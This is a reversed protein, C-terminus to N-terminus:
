VAAGKQGLFRDYEVLNVRLPAIEPVKPRPAPTLELVTDWRPVTEMHRLQLLAAEVRSEMTEAAHNLIRLYEQDAQRNSCAGCLEDYAWRFAETPFMDTRYKYHRFAGPKRVLSKIVHRYNIAHKDEGLLRDMTVQKIGHCYVEVRDEYVRAKVKQGKLRSPVSYTNRSVRVTSWATVCPTEELYEPLLRVDLLRMVALEESLRERRQMNAKEMIGNLFTAYSEISDFDRSGRLLLHQKMRRKFIGHSSEIDGNEHPARVHITKPEIRFHEMLDVYKQNFGRAGAEEGDIVHTAATSHDTWHERPIRGLRLLTSQLGQKLALMSESQCIKGWEWNSYTLVSHCILHPFEEGCITIKLSHMRTFDTEMKVGPEHEQPFYVEQDPGEVAQWRSVRRQFTRLQGKRYEGPYKECLWEFLAKAELEPADELMSRVEGWHEAFADSRTRWTHEIRMQSPIKGKMLYKQATRRDMDARLAAKSVKGTKQYEEMLKRVKRDPTVM